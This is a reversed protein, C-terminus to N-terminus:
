GEAVIAGDQTNCQRVHILILKCKDQLYGVLIAYRAKLLSPETRAMADDYMYSFSNVIIKCTDLWYLM